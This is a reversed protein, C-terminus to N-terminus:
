ALDDLVDLPVGLEKPATLPLLTPPPPPPAPTASVVLAPERMPEDTELEAELEAEAEPEMEPVLSPSRLRPLSGGGLLEGTVVVGSTLLLMALTVVLVTPVKKPFFPTNSVVAPSIVRAEPPATAISERANAERYRALYSELLERQAKAERELARLEVDQENTSAAQRKLQDLNASLAQVRADAIRADNELGRVLREAEHRIQLDLDGIQAKLEKIRPHRELLTSSQEALQGRLTARQESLRRIIESNFVDSVEISGGKELLGRILKARSEADAKQARAAGLQSNFEGLQQNSLNTNNTGVFLNTKSRYQEVKAEAEAVKRRLGDIEGALWQGAARTQDQKATQQVELYRAAIANAGRAALEPDYSQFEIAIVRSREIAFATLREYYAELVREEATMRMPDRVVGATILLFKLPSIGRLAPDFEPLEALKLKKIVDLAVERSLVLQVQSTVAEQDAGAREQTGKDVEPRLFINERGEYLIRAESKYRPTLFNVAVASLACVLITPVIIWRRRRWLAGRLARMDLDGDVATAADAVVEPAAEPRSTWKLRM